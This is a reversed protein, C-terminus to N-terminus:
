ELEIDDGWAISDTSLTVLASSTNEEVRLVVLEGVVKRVSEFTKRYRDYDARNFLSINSQNIHRTIRFYDGVQVNQKEGVDIYVIQGNGVLRRYERTMFIKGTTKNSPPSFKDFAIEARAMPATREQYPVLFDHARVEECAFVIEATASNEQALLIRVRGIDAYYLGYKSGVQAFGPGYKDADKMRRLILYEEGPKLGASTGQSVYIIDRDHFWSNGESEEGGVIRMETKIEAASFFGACYMDSLTAALKPTPPATPTETPTTAVEQEVLSAPAPPPSAEQTQPQSPTPEEPTKVVAMKKILIHDGPYIWHPNIVQPNIEWIQPWLYPDKLYQRTVDWLTDGARVTHVEFGEAQETSKNASWHGDSQQSLPHPPHGQAPLQDKKQALTWHATFALISFLLIVARNRTDVAM